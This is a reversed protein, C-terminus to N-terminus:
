IVIQQQSLPMIRVNLSFGLPCYGPRSLDVDSGEVMFLLLHCEYFSMVKVFAIVFSYYDGSDFIDSAEFSIFSPITEELSPSFVEEAMKHVM